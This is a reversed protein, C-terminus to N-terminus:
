RAQRMRGLGFDLQAADAFVTKEVLDLNPVRQRGGLRLLASELLQVADRCQSGQEKYSGLAETRFERKFGRIEAPGKQPSNQKKRGTM